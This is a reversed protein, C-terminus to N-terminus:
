FRSDMNDQRGAVAWSAAQPELRRISRVKIRAVSRGMAAAVAASIVAILMDDDEDSSVNEVQVPEKTVHEATQKKTNGAEKVIWNMLKIVYSLLILVLFVIVLCIITTGVGLKLINGM